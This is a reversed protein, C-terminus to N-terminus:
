VLLGAYKYAKALTIFAWAVYDNSVLDLVLKYITCECGNM